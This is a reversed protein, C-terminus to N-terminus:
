LDLEGLRKPQSYQYALISMSNIVSGYAHIIYITDGSALRPPPM